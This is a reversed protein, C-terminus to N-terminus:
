YRLIHIYSLIFISISIFASCLCWMCWHKLVFAQISVLYVSFLVACGSIGILILAVTMSWLGFIFVFSYATGIFAYYIMGLVEVPIGLIKSYDSHIVTDCNSYRPCVLKKKAKKKGYIYAAILFGAIGLVGILNVILVHM